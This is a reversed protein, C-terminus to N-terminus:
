RPRRPTLLRAEVERRESESTPFLRSFHLQALHEAANWQNPDAHLAHREEPSRELAVAYLLALASTSAREVVCGRVAEGLDHLLTDVWLEAAARALGRRAAHGELLELLIEQLPPCVTVARALLKSRTPGPPLAGLALRLHSLQPANGLPPLEAQIRYPSYALLDLDAPEAQPAIAGWAQRVARLRLLQELEASPEAQHAARLAPDVGPAERLALFAARRLRWDPADLAAIREAVTEPLPPPPAPAAAVRTPRTLAVGGEGWVLASGDPALSLARPFLDPLPLSGHGGAIWDVWTLSRRGPVLLLRGAVEGPGVIAEPTLKTLDRSGQPDLIRVRGDVVRARLLPRCALILDCPPQESPLSAGDLPDLRVLLNGATSAWLEAGDTDLQVPHAYRAPLPEGFGRDRVWLLEGSRANARAVFGEASVFLASGARCLRGDNLSHVVETRRARNAGWRGIRSRRSAHGSWLRTRFRQAGSRDLGVLIFRDLEFVLAVWGSPGALLARVSAEDERGVAQSWVVEGSPDLCTLTNGSAHLLLDGDAEVWGAPLAVEWALRGTSREFAQLVARSVYAFREGLCGSHPPGQFRHFRHLWSLEHGRAAAALGSRPFDRLDRPPVDGGDRWLLTATALDGRELAREALLRRAGATHVSAPYRTLVAELSADDGAALLSRPRQEEPAIRGLRALLRLTRRAEERAGVWTPAGPVFVVQDNLRPNALQGRLSHELAEPDRAALARITNPDLPARRHPPYEIPQPLATSRQHSQPLRSWADLPLAEQAVAPQSALALVIWWRRM